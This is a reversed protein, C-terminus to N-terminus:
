GGSVPPILALQMGESLATRAHVITDGCAIAIRGQHEAFDPFRGALAALADAVTAPEDLELQLTSRGCWRQTAGHCEIDIKM